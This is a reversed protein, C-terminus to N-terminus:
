DDGYIAREELYEKIDGVVNDTDIFSKESPNAQSFFEGSGYGLTSLYWYLTSFVYHDVGTTSEWEYREIGRNNTVKVRRLTEWHKVYEKLERDSPLGFLVKAQLIEDILQDLIRNRNAYVIGSRDNETNGKGWWVITQPNDMNEKFVSMRANPYTSVYHRAMTNDPNADIVFGTPKYMKLMDDLENWASFKGVKILGKESGLSYHKVNGVDVGLFYRGTNLDKPTWNDLITSRSVSLDGPNYPEGLVFNYFYEQDGKSDEIIDEAKKWPAMLHSIHYGSVTKDPQQAVWKGRRRQDDKLEVDCQACKFVKRDIDVSDPWRLIEEHGNDCTVTWEKQDSEKWKEDVVDKETTPNSFWWRGKFKSNDLRSKYTQITSQDSRSAEDHINLDSSTSIAATKSITGKFYMNRKGIQKLYVTDYSVGTFVKQNAQIIPNTKTKVFEEVDSDSPMTYIINWGFKLLAFFAKMHFAISGGVQSCKKIVIEQNWDTLIDLFFLRDSFNLVEQKENQIENKVIWALISFDEAKPEQEM